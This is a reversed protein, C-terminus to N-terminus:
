SSLPREGQAMRTPALPKVPPRGVKQRRNPIRQAPFCGLRESGSAHGGGGRPPTSIATL